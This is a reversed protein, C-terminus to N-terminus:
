SSGGYRKQCNRIRAATFATDPIIANHAAFALRPDPTAAGGRRHPWPHEAPWRPEPWRYRVGHSDIM